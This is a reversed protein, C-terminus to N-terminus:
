RAGGNEKVRRVAAVEGIERATPPVGFVGWRVDWPVHSWLRPCLRHLFATWRRRM